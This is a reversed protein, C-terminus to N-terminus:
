EDRNRKDVRVKFKTDCAKMFGGNYTFNTDTTRGVEYWDSWGTRSPIQRDAKLIIFEDEGIIIRNDDTEWSLTATTDTVKASKINITKTGGYMVAVFAMALLVIKTPKSM